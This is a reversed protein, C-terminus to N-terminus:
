GSVRLKEIVKECEEITHTKKSHNCLILLEGNEGLIRILIEGDKAQAIERIKFIRNQTEINIGKYRSNLEDITPPKSFDIIDGIRDQNSYLWNWFKNIDIPNQMQMYDKNPTIISLKGYSNIYFITEKNWGDVMNCIPNSTIIFENRVRRVFDILIENKPPKPETPLEKKVIKEEIKIEKKTEIIEQKDEIKPKEEIKSEEEKRELNFERQISERLKEELEKIRQEYSKIIEQHSPTYLSSNYEMGLPTIIIGRMKKYGWNPVIVLNSEILGKERLEKLSAELTKQGIQPLDQMFKSTTIIMYGNIKMAWTLANFIYSIIDTQTDTLAYKEQFLFDKVLTRTRKPLNNPVASM